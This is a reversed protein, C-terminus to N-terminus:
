AKVKRFFHAVLVAEARNHDKQRALAPELEPYLTAAIERARRITEAKDDKGKGGLGYFKKWTQPTPYGDIQLGLCELTTVIAGQTWFQSGVSAANNRGWGGTSSLAEVCVRVPEGAPIHQQLLVALAPGDIRRGTVPDDKAPLDLVKSWTPALLACAGTLGPDIGLVIM